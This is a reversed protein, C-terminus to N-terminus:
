SSYVVLALNGVGLWINPPTWQSRQETKVPLAIVQRVLAM